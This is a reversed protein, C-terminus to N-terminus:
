SLKIGTNHFMNFWKVENGASKNLYKLNRLYFAGFFCM